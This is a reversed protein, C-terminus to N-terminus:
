QAVVTHNPVEPDRAAGDRDHVPEEIEADELHQQAVVTEGEDVPAGVAQDLAGGARAEADHVGGIEAAPQERVRPSV